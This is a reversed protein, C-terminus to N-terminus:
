QHIDALGGGGGDVSALRPRDRLPISTSGFSPVAKPIYNARLWKTLPNGTKAM